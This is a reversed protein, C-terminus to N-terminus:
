QPPPPLVQQTARMSGAYIRELAAPNVAYNVARRVRLDDFPPRQTNMWFYFTSITPEERFQAGAFRRRVEPLRGPPVPGKM